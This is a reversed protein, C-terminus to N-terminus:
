AFGMVMRAAKSPISFTNRTPGGSGLTAWSSLPKMLSALFDPTFCTTFSEAKPPRWAM